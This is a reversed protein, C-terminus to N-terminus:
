PAARQQELLWGDALETDGAAPTGLATLVRRDIDRSIMRVSGDAFLFQAGPASPPGGFGWPVANIGDAPDRRNWPSAWPQFNEAVEGIALTHTTGDRIEEIRVGRNVPFLHINAAYHMYALGREDFQGAMGIEPHILAPIAGKGFRIVSPDDWAPQGPQHAWADEFSIDPGLLPVWGRYGRGNPLVIAGPPFSRYTEHYNHLALGLQKLNNRSQRRWYPTAMVDLWVSPPRWPSRRADRNAPAETGTALWLAQHAVGVIATGAAMLVILGMGIALTSRWTWKATSPPQTIARRRVIGDGIRHTIVLLAVFAAFGLWLSSADWVGTMVARDLMLLWGWLLNYAITDWPSPLVDGVTILLGSVGGMVWCIISLPSITGTSDVRDCPPENTTM